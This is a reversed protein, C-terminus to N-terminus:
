KAKLPTSAPADDLETVRVSLFARWPPATVGIDSSADDGPAKSLPIGTGAAAMLWVNPTVASGISGLWEAPLFTGTGDTTEPQGSLSPVIWAEAGVSLQELVDYRAGLAFRLQDGLRVDGLQVDERFRASVDVALHLAEVPMSSAVLAPIIEVGPGGAFADEDGLPIKTEIRAKTPIPGDLFQYALGVRPDVVATTRLEGGIRSTAGDIGTGDQFPRMPFALGLELRPLLGIAFLLDIQYVDEILRVERGSPAPSPATLVVPSRLYSGALALSLNGPALATADQISVFHAPGAPLDLNNSDFCPSLTTDCDTALAPASTSLLLLAPLLARVFVLPAQPRTSAM